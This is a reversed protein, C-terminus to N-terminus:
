RSECVDDCGAADALMVVRQTLSPVDGSTEGRQRLPNRNAPMGACCGEGGARRRGRAGGTSGLKAKGGSGTVTAVGLLSSENQM